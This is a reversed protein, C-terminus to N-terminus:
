ENIVLNFIWSPKYYYKKDKSVIIIKVQHIGKGIDQCLLKKSFGSYRFKPNNFTSSVDERQLGYDVPYLRNDIAMYIGGATNKNIWDVAWGNFIISDGISTEYLGNDIASIGNILEINFKTEQRSLILDRFNGINFNNTSGKSESPSLIFTDKWYEMNWRLDIILALSDSPILNCKTFIQKLENLEEKEFSNKTIRYTSYKDDYNYIKQIFEYEKDNLYSRIDEMINKQIISIKFPDDSSTITFASPSMGLEKLAIKTAFVSYVNGQGPTLVGYIHIRDKSNIGVSISNKIFNYVEKNTRLWFKNIYIMNQIGFVIAIGIFVNKVNISINKKYYRNVLIFLENLSFIHYILFVYILPIAYYTLFSNEQIILFVFYTGPIVLIFILLDIPEKKRLYYGTAGVIFLIFTGLYFIYRIEPYEYKIFYSYNKNVFVLQGFCAAYLRDLSAPIVTGTFWVIKEILKPLSNITQGRNWIEVSYFSALVKSLYYYIFVSIFFLVAYKLLISIKNKVDGFYILFVILILSMTGSVQYLMFSYIIFVISILLFIIRRIGSKSLSEYFAVFSLTSVFYAPLLPLTSSYAIHDSLPSMLIFLLALILAISTNPNIFCIWKYILVSLLIAFLISFWKIIYSNEPLVFWFMESLIAGFVRALALGMHYSNITHEGPYSWYDDYYYVGESLIPLYIIISIIITIGFIKFIFDNKKDLFFKSAYLFLISGCAAFLIKILFYGEWTLTFELTLLAIFVTIALLFYGLRKYPLLVSQNTKM